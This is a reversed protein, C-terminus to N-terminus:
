LATLLNTLTFMQAKGWTADEVVECEWEIAFIGEKDEYTSPKSFKVAMDHQFINYAQAVLTMTPTGGTLSVNTAIVPSMDSALAGSFTFTYPGGASGGVTCNSGVTSLAQFATNITAATLGVAYTIPATTQGKYSLTFNGGTVGGGFTLTQLNDIILGQAQVRVFQTTGAQLSTLLAMGQADAELMLKFTTKPKMDVHNTWGINARNFYYAGAYINSMQYDISLVRNLMTTGLAGNTPDLYVNFHKSAAPAIAIATPSGTMTIADIIPQGILKASCDFKHRDGKYGFENFLGYTFKHARITDGQEITYTQPVVSGTVPPTFIWDKATASAGHAVPAASGMAGALPYILGNYDVDGTMDGTVWESNEIAVTDYKRGTASFYQVDANIGFKFDFCQLLKTAAVSTGLASTSEVGFQVKQNISQVEPTYVM